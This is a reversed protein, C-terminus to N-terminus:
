AYSCPFQSSDQKISVSLRLRFVYTFELFFCPPLPLRYGRVVDGKGAGQGQRGGTMSVCGLLGAPGGRMEHGLFADHERIGGRALQM